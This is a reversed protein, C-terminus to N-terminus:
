EKKRVVETKVNVYFDLAAEYITDGFGCIGEQINEGYLFCWQNGDLYPIDIGAKSCINDIFGQKQPRFSQLWRIVSSKNIGHSAMLNPHSRLLELAANYMLTDGESWEVPKQEKQKELYTLMDTPDVGAYNTSYHQLDEILAVIAKRIKEDESEALQPLIIEMQKKTLFNGAAHLEKIREVIEKYKQEYTEM